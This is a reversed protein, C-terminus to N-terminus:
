LPVILDFVMSFVKEGVMAKEFGWFVTMRQM